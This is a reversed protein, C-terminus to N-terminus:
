LKSNAADEAPEFIRQIVKRLHQADFKTVYDTVGVVKGKEVNCTGSLSSHMLIPINGFRGDSRVHKTFTFGDMEPMEIDTLVLQMIDQFDKGLLEAREAHMKMREWAEKGTSVEEYTMGLRDLAKVLQKRAVLSDDAVLVHKGKTAPTAEIGAYTEDDSRPSIEALVKEVDLILVMRDDDLKTVATVAGQRSTRIMPPPVNVRDWSMRIIRDVSAVLFGQKNDNYETIILKAGEKDLPGLGISQRLDVLPINEGRLNVVGLIRSDSDPIKTIAPIKMVERIKFVNIGYIEETGLSFMLLEMKNAGALRTRQDIEAMLNSM